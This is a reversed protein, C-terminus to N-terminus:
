GLLKEGYVIGTQHDLLVQRTFRELYEDLCYKPSPEYFHHKTQYMFNENKDISVSPRLVECDLGIIKTYIECCKLAFKYVSLTHAGVPNLILYREFSELHEFYALIYNTIDATSVFNRKQNGPSHLSIKQQYVCSLPFSYQILHWRKFSEWNTPLGFVAGPRIVLVRIDSKHSFKRLIQEATYHAISYDDIPTAISDEDIYGEFRGYVKGASFYIFQKVGQKILTELLKSFYYTSRQYAKLSDNEFEEDTVGSCYILSDHGKVNLAEISELSGFDAEIECEPSRGISTIRFHETLLHHLNGGILGSTGSILARM